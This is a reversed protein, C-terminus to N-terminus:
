KASPLYKYGPAWLVVSPPTPPTDPRYNCTCIEQNECWCSSSRLNWPTDVGTGWGNDSQPPTFEVINSPPLEEELLREEVPLTALEQLFTNGPTRFSVLRSTSPGSDFELPLHYIRPNVLRSDPNELTIDWVATHWQYKLERGETIVLRHGGSISILRIEQFTLSIDTHSLRFHELFRVREGQLIREILDAEIPPIHSSWFPEENNWLDLSEIPHHNVTSAKALHWYLLQEQSTKTIRSVEAILFNYAEPLLFRGFPLLTRLPILVQPHDCWSNVANDQSIVTLTEPPFHAELFHEQHVDFFVQARRSCEQEELHTPELYTSM